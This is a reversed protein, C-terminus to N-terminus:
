KMFGEIEVKLADTIMKMQQRNNLVRCVLIAGELMNFMKIGFLGANVSSRFEGAEIGKKVIHAFKDQLGKIEKAVRHRLILDTDDAEVGFNLLPCGGTESMVLRDHYFDLLAFLKDRSTSKDRVAASLAGSLRQALFTFAELTIEEKSKFSRYIGGKALGTAEMVDSIATGAIGKQNLLLAAKEIIYQRTDEGKSM